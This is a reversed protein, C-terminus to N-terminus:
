LVLQLCAKAAGQNGTLHAIPRRNSDIDLIVLQRHGNVMRSGFHYRSLSSCRSRLRLQPCACSRCRFHYGSAAGAQDGYSISSECANTLTRRCGIPM